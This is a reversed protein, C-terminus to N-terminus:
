GDAGGDGALHSRWDPGLEREASEVLIALLVRWGRDTVSPPEDPLVVDTM